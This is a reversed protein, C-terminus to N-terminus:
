EEHWPNGLSEEYGKGSLLGKGQGHSLWMYRPLLLIYPGGRTGYFGWSEAIKADQGSKRKLSCIGRGRKM